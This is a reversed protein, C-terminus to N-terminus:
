HLWYLRMRVTYSYVGTPSGRVSLTEVDLIRASREVSALFNLFAPYTGDASLTLDVSGVPGGAPVGGIGGNSGSAANDSVDVSVLALSSAAALNNLDLIAEVNNVSAPLLKGVLELDSPSIQNKQALLENEKQTYSAIASLAADDSAVAARAKAISGTYTPDIYFFFIALAALLFLFPFFRRM